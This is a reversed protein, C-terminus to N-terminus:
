RVQVALDIMSGAYEAQPKVKGAANLVSQNFLKMMKPTVFGGLV